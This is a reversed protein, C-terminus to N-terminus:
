RPALLTFPYAPINRAVAFAVLAIACGWAVWPSRSIPRLRRGHLAAVECILGYAIAPVALVMLPNMRMAAVLQGHVLYHMARTSGCGPCSLGTLVHFPCPPLWATGGPNVFWAVMLVGSALALLVLTPALM